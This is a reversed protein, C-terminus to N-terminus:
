ASVDRTVDSGRSIGIWSNTDKWFHIICICDLLNVTGIMMADGQIVIVLFTRSQWSLSYVTELCM